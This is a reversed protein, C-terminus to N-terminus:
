EIDSLDDEVPAPAKKGKAAPAPTAKATKAPAEVVESFEEEASLGGDIREGKKVVQVNNLGAAVGKMERDFPFLSISAKFYCGSYVEDADIVPQLHADVVGPQRKSSANLFMKGAYVPDDSREEDGDRLPNKLKGKALMAVATPGFKTVAVREIEAQLKAIFPNGKEWLLSISYKPEQDKFARPQLVTVYSGLATATVIRASRSNPDAM